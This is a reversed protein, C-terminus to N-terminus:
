IRQVMTQQERSLQPVAVEEKKRKKSGEKQVIAAEEIEVGGDEEKIGVTRTRRIWLTALIEDESRAALIEDESRAALIEDESRAADYSM